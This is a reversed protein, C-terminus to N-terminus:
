SGDSSIEPHEESEERTTTLRTEKGTDLNKMWIDPNGSRDSAFALIKGDASISPCNHSVEGTTLQELVGVAAGRNADLRQSWLDGNEKLSSFVLTGDQALSPRIELGAGSTLQQAPGTM